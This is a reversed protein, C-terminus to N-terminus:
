QHQLRHCSICLVMLNDETNAEDVNSFTNIPKIHHVELGYKEKNISGCIECTHNHKKVYKERIRSWRSGYRSPNERSFNKDRCKTSCFVRDKKDKQVTFSPRQFSKKCCFCTLDILQKQQNELKCAESCYKYEKRKSSFLNKCNHCEIQFVTAGQERCTDSCYNGKHDIKSYQIQFEKECFKCSTTTVKSNKHGLKGSCSRSCTRKRKDKTQFNSNCYECTKEIM